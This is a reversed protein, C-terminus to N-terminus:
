TLGLHVNRNCSTAIESGFRESKSHLISKWDWRMRWCSMVFYIRVFVFEPRLCSRILFRRVQACSAARSGSFATKQSEEWAFCKGAVACRGSRSVPTSSHLTPLKSWAVANWIEQNRGENELTACVPHKSFTSVCIWNNEM